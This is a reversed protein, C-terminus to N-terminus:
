WGSRGRSRRTWTNWVIQVALGNKAFIGTEKALWAPLHASTMASYGVTMKTLQASAVSFYLPLFLSIALIVPKM